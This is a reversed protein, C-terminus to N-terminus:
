ATAAKRFGLLLPIAALALVLRGLDHWDLANVLSNGTRNIAVNDLTDLLHDPKTMPVVFGGGAAALAALGAAGKDGDERVSADIVYVRHGNGHLAAAARIASAGQLGGSGAILVVDGAIIHSEELMKGALTLARDPRTGPDPVTSEDLAFLDTDIAGPFDTLASAIYADGAYVILGAQRAALHQLIEHAASAAERIGSNGGLDQSADVVLITADLNRLRSQDTRLWAPGALAITGLVLTALVAPARLRGAGPAAAGRAVMAALLHADAAKDWSGLAGARPRSLAFLLGIAPLALLWWPRLLAFHGFAIM